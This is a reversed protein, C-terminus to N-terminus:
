ADARVAVLWFEKRIAAADRLREISWRLPAMLLQALRRAVGATRHVLHPHVRVVRYGEEELLRSLTAPTYYIAHGTTPDSPQFFKHHAPDRVARHYAGFPVAIYLGGGPRLVRRVERLAARPDPTHELVHKMVVIQFAGEAFPMATMSGVEVAYGKSRCFAAVGADYELGTAAMGLQQAARLTYGLSCGVDLLPGPAVHNLVDRIQERSKSVRHRWRRSYATSAPDFPRPLPAQEATWKKYILGCACRVWLVTAHRAYDSSAPNRCLPCATHLTGDTTSM